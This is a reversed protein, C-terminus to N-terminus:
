NQDRWNPGYSPEAPIVLGGVEDLPIEMDEQLWAMAQKPDVSDRTYVLLEDHIQLIPRQLGDRKWREWCRLLALKTLHAVPNQQQVGQAIKMRDEPAGFMPLVYGFPTRVAHETEVQRSVEQQFKRVGPFREFYRESIELALRRHDWSADGFCRRALNVGTFTVVKGAFTWQPFVTRAGAAIEARLKTSHLASRDKLQLGELINGAHQISKAANRASGEKISIEMDDKIEAMDRVWAHLDTDRDITYGGRHLVYRNEANSLDARTIYWGPPAIIARRIKKGVSEGKFTACAATPHVGKTEGCVCVKRSVRRKAVNQFNPSSCALRGSSTFFNLRPHVFGDTDMYGQVWGNKDRYQREFWRDTGNGLEKYDLLAVLEDPARDELEDVMERVTDERADDLDIKHRDKFHTVVAKPSKPNFPLTCEIEQKERVFQANLDDVYEVDIKVGYDQMNALVWALDRHMSHLKEVGRLKAQRRIKPLAMAVSAADLANYHWKSHDPCPGSCTAGRCTKWHPLDTYISAFSGLNMFGRGRIDGADESLAAKGSSKCLNPNVLWHLIISDLVNTLPIHIGMKELVFIDAGIVNHGVIELNPHNQLMERFYPFGEDFDVSIHLLGDSLGLITPENRQSWELDLSIPLKPNLRDIDEPNQSFPPWDHLFKYM